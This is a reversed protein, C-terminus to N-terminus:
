QHLLSEVTQTYLNNSSLLQFVEELEDWDDELTRDTVTIGIYEDSTANNIANEVDKITLNDQVQNVGFPAKTLITVDTNTWTEVEAPALIDDASPPSGGRTAYLVSDPWETDEDTGSGVLIEGDAPLQRILNMFDDMTGEFDVRRKAIPSNSYGDWQNHSFGHHHMAIEHGRSEMDRVLSLKQSDELVYEAMQPSFHLSLKMSHADAQEVLTRLTEWRETGDTPQDFPEIHVTMHIGAGNFTAPVPEEQDIVPERLFVLAGLVSIIILLGIIIGLLINNTM